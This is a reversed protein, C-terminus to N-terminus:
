DIDLATKSRRGDLRTISHGWSLVMAVAVFRKDLAQWKMDIKLRTM